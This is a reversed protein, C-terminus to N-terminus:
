NENVTLPLDEYGVFISAKFCQDAPFNNTHHMDNTFQTVSFFNVQWYDHIKNFIDVYQLHYIM